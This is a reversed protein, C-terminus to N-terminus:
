PLGERKWVQMNLHLHKHCRMWWSGRRVESSGPAPRAGPNKFVKGKCLSWKMRWSAAWSKSKCILAQSQRRSTLTHSGATLKSKRSNPPPLLPHPKSTKAKKKCVVCLHLHRSKLDQRTKPLYHATSNLRSSNPHLTVAPTHNFTPNAWMNPTTITPPFGM